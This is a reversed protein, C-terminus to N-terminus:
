NANLQNVSNNFTKGNIYVNVYKDLIQTQTNTMNSKVNEIVNLLDTENLNDLLKFRKLKNVDYTIPKNDQIYKGYKTKLVNYQKSDKNTDFLLINSKKLINTTNLDINKLKKKLYEINNKNININSSLSDDFNEIRKLNILNMIFIIIFFFIILLLIIKM